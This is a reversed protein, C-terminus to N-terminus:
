RTGVGQNFMNFIEQNERHALIFDHAERAQQEPALEQFTGPRLFKDIVGVLVDEDSTEAHFRDVLFHAVRSAEM